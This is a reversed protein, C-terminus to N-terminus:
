FLTKTLKEIGNILESIEEKKPDRDKNHDCLNRIDGFSQIQRWLPVDIIDNSKLIENFDNISPNKKRSSLNHNEMVQLLHKELVVGAIAGSGRFFGKKCLEKAADLESDFFDAQIIQKIDFLSSDFRSSVSNLIALQQSFKPIAARKDVNGVTFNDFYDKICFNEFTINKRSKPKEYYSKFDELRDPLVQKIVIFAESYWKQYEEDFNPLKNLYEETFYGDDICKKKHHPYCELMMSLKLSDGKNILNKLDEKYKELNNTM